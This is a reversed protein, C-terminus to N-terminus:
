KGLRKSLIKNVWGKERRHWGAGGGGGMFLGLWIRLLRGTITFLVNLRLEM